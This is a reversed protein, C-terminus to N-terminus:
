DHEPTGTVRHSAAHLVETVLRRVHGGRARYLARRGERRVSVLGALRLKGLHQSVAPRAMGVAAVLATVDHEGDSLLWMLRLRTPDALMRLMETAAEVQGGPLRQQLDSANAVNDRAYM